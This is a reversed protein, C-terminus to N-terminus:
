VYYLVSLLLEPSINHNFVEFVMCLIGLSRDAHRITYNIIYKRNGPKGWIRGSIYIHTGGRISCNRPSGKLPNGQVKMVAYTLWFRSCFSSLYANIWNAIALDLFHLFGSFPWNMFYTRDQDNKSAAFGALWYVGHCIQYRKHHHHSQCVKTTTKVFYCLWLHHLRSLIAGGGFQSFIM